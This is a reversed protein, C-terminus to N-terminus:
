VIKWGSGRTPRVSVFPYKSPSDLDDLNQIDLITQTPKVVGPLDGVKKHLLINRRSSINLVTFTWGAAGTDSM